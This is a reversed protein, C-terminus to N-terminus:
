KLGILEILSNKEREWTFYTNARKWGAQGFSSRLDCNKSLQVIYQAMMETDGENSLYGTEGHLVAEPIGAHKTSVVPLGNGMAELIAVPLGEEDGTEPDTCSHQLFIDAKKMMTQVVSNPQGEHLTIKNELGHISIYQKVNEFLSGDGVYDLHLNPFAALAKHFAELLTLPAKKAVMRGVSLCRIIKKEMHQVPFASVGVGYPIVHIKSGNLGIDILRLRSYESMTIIGDAKELKLYKRCTKPDRLTKSIDYGHAHAFFRIGLKRAVQLWKLSQDLYESLVVEVGHQKLFHELRIQVPSLKSLGFLFRTAQFAWQWDKLSQNIELYPMSPTHNTDGMIQRFATVTKRPLLETM